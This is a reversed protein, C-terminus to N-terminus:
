GATVHDQQRTDDRVRVVVSAMDDSQPTDGRFAAVEELLKDITGEASLGEECALRIAEGTREYGFQEGAANDAEVIGDSCFVVRDGPDLQVEVVEYETDPRVGLPYGGVALEVVEQTAAQYHYPYPCGANSLRLSKTAPDLEGMTFCVFTRRVLARHMSANLRRIHEEVSGSSEMQHDLVGSFMMVPVAADMAHGTVDAMVISLEGGEEFYQFFDGGVHNAPICRGAVDYGPVDPHSSPMLGMQLDHATRLEDEMEQMMTREARRLDRRKRLAYGTVAVLGAVALGLGVGLVLTETRPRISIRVATPVESHVLDRDVAKVEFTYRGLGLGSYRVSGNRTGRWGEDYGKLRYHYVLSGVGGKHSIGHFEFGVTDVHTPLVIDAESEYRRDAVVADVSVVPPRGSAPPRYRTLGKDTGFWTDGRRDQLVSRVDHSALGDHSHTRHFAVGDFRFVGLDATVFWLDGEVGGYAWRPVAGELSEDGGFSRFRGQAYRALGADGLIWVAGDRDRVLSQVQGVSLGDAAGFTAISRNRYRLLTDRRSSRLGFCIGGGDDECVPGVASTDYQTGETVCDYSGDRYRVLGEGTGFWLTGEEGQYASAPRDSELPRGEFGEGLEGDVLPAVGERRLVWVCSDRDQYLELIETGRGLPTFDRGDFGVSANPDQLCVYGDRDHIIRRRGTHEPLGDRETLNWLEEGGLHSIGRNTAFWV